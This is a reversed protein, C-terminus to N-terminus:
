PVINLSTIGGTTTKYLTGSILGAGSATADDPFTPVNYLTIYGTIIDITLAPGIGDTAIGFSNDGVDFINSGVRWNDNTFNLLSGFAISAETGSNGDIGSSIMINGFTSAGSVTALSYAPALGFFAPQQVQYFDGLVGIANLGPLMMFQTASVAGDVDGLSIFGGPTSFPGFKFDGGDLALMRSAGESYGFSWSDGTVAGTTSSFIILVNYSLLQYLGTIPVGSDSNGQNDNWAFTDPSGTSDIWVQYIIPTPGTYSYSFPFPTEYFSDILIEALITSGNLSIINIGSFIIGYMGNVDFSHKKDDIKTWTSNGVNDIDGTQFSRDTGNTYMMMGYNHTYSFNWFDLLHHGSTYNFGITVGYSLEITSSSINVYTGSNGQDDYWDFQDNPSGNSTITVTYNVTTATPGSYGHKVLFLDNLFAGSSYINATYGDFGRMFIDSHFDRVAFRINNNWNSIDGIHCVVNSPYLLFSPGFDGNSYYNGGMMLHAEQPQIAFLTGGWNIRDVDGIYIPYEYNNSSFSAYRGFSPVFSLNWEDGLNHGLQYSFSYNLSFISVGNTQVVNMSQSNGLTDFYSFTDYSGVSIGSYTFTGGTFSVTGSSDIGAGSIPQYIYNGDSNSIGLFLGTSGIGPGGSTQTIVDGINLTGIVSVGILGNNAISDIIITYDVPITITPNLGSIYFDDLSGSFTWATNVCNYLGNIDINQTTDDINIFTHYNLNNTDGIQATGAHFGAIINGNNFIAVQADDIRLFQNSNPSKIDLGGTSNGIGLTTALNQASSHGSFGSYGSNGTPGTSGTSGTNGIQGSFGSKGSWGSQGISGSMGSMGSFGSFGSFGSTSSGSFGSSGKIGSIGSFGSIGINGSYGSIGSGSIGSKGSFGSTGIYGSFGSSSIGSFGSFGSVASANIQITSPDSTDFSINTGEKISKFRLDVGTKNYFIGTGTGVNSATNAEGNSSQLISNNTWVTPTTGTAVFSIGQTNSLAGVNIFDDGAGYTLIQYLQNIVLPGSTVPIASGATMSRWMVGDWGVFDTGSWRIEGAQFAILTPDPDLRLRPTEIVVNGLISTATIEGNSNVKFKYTGGIPSPSGFNNAVIVDANVSKVDVTSASDVGLSDILASIGSRLKSFNDNITLRTSSTSDTSLIEKLDILQKLTM